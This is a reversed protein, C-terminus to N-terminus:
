WFLSLYGGKEKLELQTIKENNFRKAYDSIETAKLLLPNKELITLSNKQYNNEIIFEPLKDIERLITDKFNHYKQTELRQQNELNKNVLVRLYEKTPLSM